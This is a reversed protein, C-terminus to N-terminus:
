RMQDSEPVITSATCLERRNAYTLLQAYAAHLMECDHPSSCMQKGVSDGVTLRHRKRRGEPRIRELKVVWVIILGGM